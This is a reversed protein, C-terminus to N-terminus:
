AYALLGRLAYACGRYLERRSRPWRLAHDRVLRQLQSASFDLNAHREAREHVSWVEAAAQRPLLNGVAERTYAVHEHEDALVAGVAKGPYPSPAHACADYHFELSRAIRKELCHAHAMFHALKLRRTDRPQEARIAWTAPTHGRIVANFICALPLEEVQQGLKEIARAYLAIHKDEEQAHRRMRAALQPDEVYAVPFYDDVRHPYAEGNLYLNLVRAHLVPDAVIDRHLRRKLADVFVM